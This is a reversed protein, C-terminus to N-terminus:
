GLGVPNRNESSILVWLRKEIVGPVWLFFMREKRRVMWYFFSSPTLDETSKDINYVYTLRLNSGWILVFTDPLLKESFGSSLNRSYQFAEPHMTHYFLDAVGVLVVEGLKAAV